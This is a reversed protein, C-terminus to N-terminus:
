LYNHIIVLAFLTLVFAFASFALGLWELAIAKYNKRMSKPCTHWNWLERCIFRIIAM